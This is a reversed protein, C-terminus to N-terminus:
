QKKVKLVRRQVEEITKIKKYHNRSSATKYNVRDTFLMNVIDLVVYPAVDCELLALATECLMSLNLLPAPDIEIELTANDETARQVLIEPV